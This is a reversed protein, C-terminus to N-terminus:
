KKLIALYDGKQRFGVVTEVVQGNKFIVVTPISSVNYKAALDAESDVDVKVIKLDKVEQGIEDIIPALMQCPGCWSAWFDVLVQGSYELVESSFNGQTGVIDM